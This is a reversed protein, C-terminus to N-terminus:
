MGILSELDKPCLVPKSSVDTMLSLDKKLSLFFSKDLGTLLLFFFDRKFAILGCFGPGEKGM